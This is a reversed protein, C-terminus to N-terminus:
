LNYEVKVKSKQGVLQYEMEFRCSGNKCEMLREAKMDEVNTWTNTSTDLIREVCSKVAQTFGKDKEQENTDQLNEVVVQFNKRLDMLRTLKAKEQKYLDYPIFIKDYDTFTAKLLNGSSISASLLLSGNSCNNEQVNTLDGKQQLLDCVSRKDIKDVNSINQPNM